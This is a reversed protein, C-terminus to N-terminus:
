GDAAYQRRGEIHCRWSFGVAREWPKTNAGRNAGPSGSQQEAVSQPGSHGPNGHVDRVEQGHWEPQLAAALVAARVELEM